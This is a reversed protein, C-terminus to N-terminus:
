TRIERRRRIQLTCRCAPHGLPRGHGSQFNSNFAIWSQRENAACIKEDVREDGVSLWRKELALGAEELQQGVQLAGESYAEGTETLAVLEARNRIHKQPRSASFGRFHARIERQTKNYSWGEEVAQALLTRLGRRTTENIRTVREAGLDELYKVAAPHDVDWSLDASMDAVSHLFGAELAASAGGKIPTEVAVVTDAETETWLPQWPIEGSAEAIAAVAEARATIHPELITLKRLFVRAQRNWAKGMGTAMKRAIPVLARRQRREAAVKGLAEVLNLRTM